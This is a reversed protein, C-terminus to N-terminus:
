ISPSRRISWDSVAFVRLTLCLYIDGPRSRVSGTLSLLSYCTQYWSYQYQKNKTHISRSFKWVVEFTCSSRYSTRRTPWCDDVACSSLTHPCFFVFSTPPLLWCFILTNNNRNKIKLAVGPPDSRTLFNWWRGLTHTTTQTPHPHFFFFFLFFEGNRFFIISRKVVDM